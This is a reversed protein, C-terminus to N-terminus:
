SISQLTSPMPTRSLAQKTLFAQNHTELLTLDPFAATGVHPDNVQFAQFHTEFGGAVEFEGVAFVLDGAFFIETPHEFPGRQHVGGGGIGGIGATQGLLLRM